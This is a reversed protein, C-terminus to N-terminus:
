FTPISSIFFQSLFSSHRSPSVLVSSVVLSLILSNSSLDVSVERFQFAFPFFLIPVGEGGFLFLVVGFLIDLFYPVIELYLMHTISYHVIQLLLSQSSELILSLYWVMSRHLKSLMLCFVSFSCKPMYQKGSCVCIFSLLSLEEKQFYPFLNRGGRGKRKSSTRDKEYM